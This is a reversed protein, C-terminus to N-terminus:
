ARVKYLYWNSSYLKYRSRHQPVQWIIYISASVGFKTGRLLSIILGASKLNEM